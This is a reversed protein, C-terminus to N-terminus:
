VGDLKAGGLVIEKIYEPRKLSKLYSEYLVSESRTNFSQFYIVTWPGKNKTATVQNGNHRYLRASVDNTQGIYLKGQSNELIYTYYM